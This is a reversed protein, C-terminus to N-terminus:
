RKEQIKLNKKKAKQKPGGPVIKKQTHLEQSAHGKTVRLFWRITSVTVYNYM